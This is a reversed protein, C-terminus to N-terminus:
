FCGGARNRGASVVTRRAGSQSWTSSLRLGGDRWSMTMAFCSMQLSLFLTVIM